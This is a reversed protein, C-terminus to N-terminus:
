SRGFMHWCSSKSIGWISLTGSVGKQMSKPAVLLNAQTKSGQCSIPHCHQVYATAPLFRSLQLFNEHRPQHPASSFAWAKVGAPPPKFNRILTNFQAKLSRFFKSMFQTKILSIYCALQSSPPSQLPASNIIFTQYAGWDLLVVYLSYWVAMM